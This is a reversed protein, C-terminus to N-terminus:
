SWRMRQDLFASAMEKALPGAFFDGDAYDCGLDQLDILQEDSRVGSAVVDAGHLHGVTIASQALLEEYERRRPGFGAALSPHMRILDPSLSAVTTLSSSGRFDGSGFEDLCLCVGYNNRLESFVEYAAMSDKLLEAETMQLVITEGELSNKELLDGIEAVFGPATIQRQNLRVYLALPQLHLYELRWQAIQHFCEKLAKETVQTLRASDDIYSLYDRVPVPGDQPHQWYARAEFGVIDGSAIGVVPQYCLEIGGTKDLAQQILKGTDQM